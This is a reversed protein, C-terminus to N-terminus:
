RNLSNLHEPSLGPNVEEFSGCAIDSFYQNIAHMERQVPDKSMPYSYTRACLSSTILKKSRSRGTCSLQQCICCCFLKNPICLYIKRHLFFGGGLGYTTVDPLVLQSQVRAWKESEPCMCLESATNKLMTLNQRYTLKVENSPFMDGHSQMFNVPQKLQPGAFLDQANCRSIIELGFPCCTTRTAFTFNLCTGVNEM